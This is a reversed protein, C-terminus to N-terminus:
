SSSIHTFDGCTWVQQFLFSLDTNIPNYLLDSLQCFGMWYNQLYLKGMIKESWECKHDVNLVQYLNVIRSVLRHILYCSQNNQSFFHRITSYNTELITLPYQSLMPSSFNFLELKGLEVYCVCLIFNKLGYCMKYNGASTKKLLEDPWIIYKKM